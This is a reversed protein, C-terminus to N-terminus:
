EFYKRPVKQRRLFNHRHRQDAPYLVRLCLQLSKVLFELHRHRVM